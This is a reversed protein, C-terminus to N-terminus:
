LEWTELVEKDEETLQPLPPQIKMSLDFNQKETNWVGTVVVNSVDEGKSAREGIEEILDFLDDGTQFTGDGRPDLLANIPEGGYREEIVEMAEPSPTLQLSLGGLAAIPKRGEQLSEQAAQVREAAEQASTAITKALALHEEAVELAGGAGWMGWFFLIGTFAAVAALVVVVTATPTYGGAWGMLVVLAAIVVVRVVWTVLVQRYNYTFRALFRHFNNSM